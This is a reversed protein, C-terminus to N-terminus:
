SQRGGRGPLKKKESDEGWELNKLDIGGGVRLKVRGREQYSM